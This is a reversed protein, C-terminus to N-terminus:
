NKVVRKTVVGKETTVRVFYTGKAYGSLDLNATHDNVNMTNLLKGYADYVEVNEMRWEGNKIQVLGNTPNPFVTVSNDLTYDNIGTTMFTITASPDSTQGNTCHAIVQVDYSTSGTLGVLTHPNTTTSVTNWSDAGTVRYNVDWSTVDGQQTWSIVASNDTISTAEVNTPSPCTQQEAQTTFTMEAGYTTGSATTAFARFTYGTNPTLGTLNHSMTTGTANVATYSGGTTAKWEFGQASITETGATVTGHLTAATTGINDAAQTTVTPPTVSPTATTFTATASWNSSETASCVARVRVQYQTGATLGTLNHSPTGTVNISNSWNSAAATKYQLEWATETGGATWTVTASTQTINSATVGAPADCTTPTLTSDINIVLNDMMAYYATTAGYDGSKFAIYHGNGTYNAFSVERDEWTTVTTGPLVTDVPVFTNADTPSTMVGVVLATAYSTSYGRFKFTAKLTNVPITADFEPTIAINYTTSSSYFYLGATSGGYGYSSNCYPRDGSTYTNIKAWCQPYASTGTGYTDFNETYPLTTVASCPTEFILADSWASYEGGGCSTRVYVTYSTSSSLGTLDFTTSQITNPTAADPNFSGVGYVYEWANDTTSAPTFGITYVGNNQSNLTVNYPRGCNSATIRISDIVGSPDHLVSGDNNWRIYLRKTTNAYSSNLSIREHVWDSQLNFKGLDVAGVPNHTTATALSHAAVGQVDVPNGIYVKIYDYNGEGQCKWNFSLEFESANGFTFDRYAWITNATAVYTANAGNDSSVYLVSDTYGAPKGIYWKNATTTNCITWAFNEAADEFDHFYPVQAPDSRLVSFSTSVWNSYGLGNSCITRVYVNYADGPNLSTLSLTTGTVTQAQSFDPTTNSPVVLVEFSNESASPATWSIDATSTTVMVSLNTPADCSPAIDLVAHDIMFYDTAATPAFKLAIYKGTGTYNDFLIDAHEWNASNATITDVPVFTSLTAPNTMVGIILPSTYSTSYTRYEFSLQLDALNLTADLEPMVAVNYTSSSAYFYLSSTGNYSYSSSCFPRPDSYTCIRNWCIPMPGPNAATSSTTVGYSDFDEIYPLTSLPACDTWFSYSMDSSYNGGCDAKVFVEYRTAPLLNDLTVTNTPTALWDNDTLLSLDITGYPGYVYVWNTEDGGATWTIDASNVTVNTTHINEVHVCAPIYDIHIDDIYMYSSIYQPSRFAVYRGNGTYTNTKVEIMEWTSTTSPTITAIPQFTSVDTPDSMIGVELLYTSSTKYANFRIQLSDMPVSSDFPPTCAYSYASTSGYFYLTKTGNPAAAQTNVYPYNYSYNTGRTWCDVFCAYSSGTASEFDQTYPLLVESCTTKALISTWDSYESGCDSRLQVVYETSSNLNMITYPSTVNMETTWTSDGLAKYQLEWNTENDGPAWSLTISESNTSYDYINPAICTALSDCPIGFIVNSRNGSSYSSTTTVATPNSPDPNNSDNYYYLSRYNGSTSHVYFTYSSSNYDGSNDDVALVLNDTGNYHFVSDLVFTNWGQSCNLNGSYVLSLNSLPIYNSTSTFANQTTHGLYINVSNKDTMATSYAYQFSISRIDAPGNMESSLYIQQSYTYNYLNNVPLYYNTTTGGAITVPGGALCTTSFNGTLTDTIGDTCNSYLIVDYSTQPMLGTLIQSSGTVVMPTWANQGAETYELTYDTVNIPAETWSVLASTGAVNSVELDSPSSCTAEKLVVEDLYVYSTISQPAYFALYVVDTYANPLPVTFSEFNTTSSFDSPTITKLLTFTNLDDPDTMVGVDLRGYSTSTRRLKFELMLSNAPYQSLDLGQSAALSYYGSTCYFYISSTGTSHYSTSIYPYNTSYNTKRTWCGPFYAAGSVGSGFEDFNETYPLVSTPLCRTRFTEPDSWASEDNADCLAKVYVDYETNDTLNSVTYPHTSVDIPTGAALSTGTPVVVIQWTNETNRPTWDVTVEDSSIGSLTIDSPTLCTPIASLVVDDIYVYNSTTAPARFAIYNGAGAYNNFMVEKEYWTGTSTLTSGNFSEVLTFTTEDTPDTMVGVEITGYGSTTSSKLAKFNLMLTNLPYLTTDIPPLIGISYYTSTAYFYLASTGTSHYSTSIYPFDTSYNTLRSWCRPYITAGSVTSGSNYGEFNETYPLADISACTTYFYWSAWASTGTGCITRIYATYRKSHELNTFTYSPTSTQIPTFNDPNAGDSLLLIEYNGINATDTWHMTVMDTGVTDLSLATPKPCTFGEVRINDVAIPPNTGSSGDNRWMFYLRMVRNGYEAKNLNLVVHSWTPQQCQYSSGNINWTVSGPITPVTGTTNGTVIANSYKGMSLRMYDSSVQGMGKYDYTCTYYDYSDDLYVDRIAFVTAPSSTNYTNSIGGDNSIYLANGGNATNNAADGIVWQNQCSDNEFVWNAVESPDEFNCIYPLTAPTTYLTPAQFASSWESIESGCDAQVLFTYMTNATLGSITVPNTTVSTTIATTTDNGEYYKINWQTETGASWALDISNATAYTTHLNTPRFCNPLATFMVDDIYVTNASGDRGDSLFAIYQGTGIYNNFYVDREEWTSTLSPTFTAVLEFTNIDTPDSMVGVKLDYSLSTAYLKFRAMVNSVGGASPLIAPATGVCYNNATTYMYLSAGGTSSIYPYTSYTSYRQWCTPYNSSSGTGYSNFDESYPLTAIGQGCATRFSARKWPSTNVGDPCIARVAFVYECDQTLNQATYTLGTVTTPTVTSIDVSQPACVVEYGNATSSADWAFDASSATINSVTVTAPKDCHIVPAEFLYYRNVDPWTGSAITNSTGNNYYQPQHSANILVVDNANVCMGAQRTVAPMITPATSAYVIQIDNSGEFLQVQWSLIADRSTSNYTSTAFEVVLIRDPATGVVKYTIHGLDTLYGDCGMFNIKPNNYGANTSSFPTTYYNTGTVTSGFRLNGDSNVSFQTYNTGAFNFTFGINQVTSVGYDGAGPTILSTPSTLAIWKTADVGTSFNYDELSQASVRVAFFCFLMMLFLVNKKM